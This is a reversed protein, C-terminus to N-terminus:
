RPGGEPRVASLARAASRIRHDLLTALMYTGNVQPSRQATDRLRRRRHAIGHVRRIPPVAALTTPPDTPVPAVEAVATAAQRLAERGAPFVLDM